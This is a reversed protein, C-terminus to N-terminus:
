PGPATILGWIYGLINCTIPKGPPVITLFRSALAPSGLSKPENGPDPLDEPSPFPLRFWYEQRPSGMSLPAQRAATWPTVFLWVRSFSQACVLTSYQGVWNCPFVSAREKISPSCVVHLWIGAFGTHLQSCWSPFHLPTVLCGLSDAKNTNKAHPHGRYCYSSFLVPFTVRLISHMQSLYMWSHIGIQTCCRIYLILSREKKKGEKKKKQSPYSFSLFIEKLRETIRQIFQHSLVWATNGALCLEKACCLRQM